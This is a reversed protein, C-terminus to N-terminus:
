VYDNVGDLSFAQGVKGATFTAGGQLTGNHGQTDSANGDGPYWAVVGAPPPICAQADPNPLKQDDMGTLLGFGNIRPPYAFERLMGRGAAHVGISDSLQALKSPQPHATHATAKNFARVFIPIFGLTLVLIVLLRRSSLVRLGRPQSWLRHYTPPYRM